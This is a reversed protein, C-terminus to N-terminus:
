GRRRGVPVTIIAAAQEAQLATAVTEISAAPAANAKKARMRPAVRDGSGSETGGEGNEGTTEATGTLIAATKKVETLNKKAPKTPAAAVIKEADEAAAAVGVAGAM